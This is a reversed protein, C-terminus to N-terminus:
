LKEAIRLIEEAIDRYSHQFNFSEVKKKQEEYNKDDALFLIKEKIGDENLPNIFLGIDKIREYIGIERTCIFPPLFLHVARVFWCCDRPRPPCLLPAVVSM